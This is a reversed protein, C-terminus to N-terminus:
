HIVTYTALGHLIYSLTNIKFHHICRFAELFQTIFGIVFMSM